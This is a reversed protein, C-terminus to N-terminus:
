KMKGRTISVYEENKFYITANIIHMTNIILSPLFLMKKQNLQHLINCNNQEDNRILVM